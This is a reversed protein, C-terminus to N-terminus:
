LLVLGYRKQMGSRVLGTITSRDPPVSMGLADKGTLLNGTYEPYLDIEGHHLAKLILGTGLNRKIEVRLGTKDEIVERLIEALIQGETFDKAGIVIDARHSRFLPRALEVVAYGSLGVILCGGLAMGLTSSKRALRAIGGLCWFLLLTLILIPIAGLEMLGYD